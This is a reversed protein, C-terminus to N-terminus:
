DAAIAELVDVRSARRAPGVAALVGVLAAVVLYGVLTGVPVSLSSIGQDALSRTLAIGAGAGLAVGALAGLLSMLVSERRIVGRVQRRTAGVARMLGLERTREVVSLVLTNVIGLVAVVVALLLMATVLGLMQDVHAQQDAVFEAQDKVKVNPYAALAKRVAAKTAAPDAGNAYRVMVAADLRSTVNATYDGLTLVYGAGVLSDREFTGAVTFTKAGTEPFTLTVTGGVEAGAARAQKTSLLVTGDRFTTLSGSVMGLDMVRTLSDIDMGAVNTGAGNATAGSFRLEAVAALDDRGRLVGAVAPSIGGAGMMGAPKLILDSRNGGTVADAVSAKTSAATVSVACVVALGITLALATAAARQPARGVNRAAMRWGGGPRGRDALRAIGRALLPGATVLGAFGVLASV